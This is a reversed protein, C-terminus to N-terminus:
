GDITTIEGKHVETGQGINLIISVPQTNGLKGLQTHTKDSYKAPDLLSAARLYINARKEAILMTERCSARQVEWLALEFLAQARTSALSEYRKMLEHDLAMWQSVLQRSPMHEDECILNLSEGEALRDFVEDMFEQRQDQSYHSNVRRRFPRVAEAVRTREAEKAQFLAVVKPNAQDEM